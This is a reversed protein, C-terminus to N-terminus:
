RPELAFEPEAELVAIPRDFNEDDIVSVPRGINRTHTLVAQRMARQIRGERSVVSKWEGAFASAKVNGYSEPSM